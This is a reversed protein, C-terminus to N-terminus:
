FLQWIQVSFYHSPRPRMVCLGPFQIQFVCCSTSVLDVAVTLCDSTNARKKHCVISSIIFNLWTNKLFVQSATNSSGSAKLLAAYRREFKGLAGINNEFLLSIQRETLLLFEEYDISNETLLPFLTLKM